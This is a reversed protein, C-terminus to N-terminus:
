GAIIRQVDHELKRSSVSHGLSRLLQNLVSTALRALDQKASFYNFKGEASASDTSPTSVEIAEASITPVKPGSYISTPDFIPEFYGDPRSPLIQLGQVRLQAQLHGEGFYGVTKWWCAMLKVFLVLYLALDFVSWLPRNPEGRYQMETAHAIGGDQTVRWRGEYKLKKHYWTFEFFDASRRDACAANGQYVLNQVCPYIETILDRLM